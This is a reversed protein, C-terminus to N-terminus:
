AMSGTQYTMLGTRTESSGREWFGVWSMLHFFYFHGDKSGNRATDNGAGTRIGVHTGGQTTETSSGDASDDAVLAAPAQFTSGNASGSASHSAAQDAVGLVLAVALAGVVFILSAPFGVAVLRDDREADGRM